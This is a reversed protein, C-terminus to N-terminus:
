PGLQDSIIKAAKLEGGLPVALYSTEKGINEKIRQALLEPTTKSYVMDNLAGYRHCRDTVDRQEDYNELPFYIFPKQLALQELTTTGGGSSICLDAAALHKYLSPVYGKVEIGNSTSITKPDIAPGAVLVMRLDPMEKKLITYTRSCLDLLLKGASTGGISVVILPEHGYGLETRVEEKNAYDKPDFPVIYGLFDVHEKCLQRKNPRFLGFPEDAVDEIEGVFLLRDVVKPENRVSVMWFRNIIRAGLLEMPQNTVSRHGVFDYILVYPFKKLEPKVTLTYILDYNEDGVVLDFKEREIATLVTQANKPFIKTWKMSFRVLNLEYGNVTEEAADGTRIMEEAEPLVKEGREKLLQLAPNEALWTIDVDTRLRRLANAIELDRWIHGLGISGSVYLIRKTM